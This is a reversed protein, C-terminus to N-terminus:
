ALQDKAKALDEPTDVSLPVSDVTVCDIRMGVELARLQELKERQELHSPALDCFRNLATRSFGYIGVHQFRPGPGFPAEARTFYLARGDEAIVAKVRDPGLEGERSVVATVIEANPKRLELAVARLVDAGVDPMDGQLNIVPRDGDADVMQAAARVRDTGSPLDPDTLVAQGGFARVAEVIEADGAAIWVEGVQAACARGWVHGILPLGGIDALPKGPLRASGM